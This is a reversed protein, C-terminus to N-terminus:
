ILTYRNMCSRPLPYGTLMPRERDALQCRIQLCKPGDIPVIILDLVTQVQGTVVQPKLACNLRLVAAFVSVVGTGMITVTVLM